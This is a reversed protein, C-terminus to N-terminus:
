FDKQHWKDREEEFPDGTLDIVKAQPHEGLAGRELWAVGWRECLGKIREEDWDVFYTMQGKSMKHKGLLLPKISYTM